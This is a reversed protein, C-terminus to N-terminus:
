HRYKSKPFVAAIDVNCDVAEVLNLCIGDEQLIASVGDELTSEGFIHIFQDVFAKVNPYSIWVCFEANSVWGMEDVLCIDQDNDDTCCLKYLELEQNM